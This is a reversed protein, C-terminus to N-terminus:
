IVAKFRQRTGEPERNRDRGRQQKRDTGERKRSRMDSNHIEVKLHRRARRDKATDRKTQESIERRKRKRKEKEGCM